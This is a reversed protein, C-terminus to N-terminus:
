AYSGILWLTCFTSLALLLIGGFMKANLGLSPTTEIAKASSDFPKLRLRTLQGTAYFVSHM